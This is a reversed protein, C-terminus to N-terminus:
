EPVETLLLNENRAIDLNQQQNVYLLDYLSDVYEDTKEYESMGIVTTEYRNSNGTKLEGNVISYPVAKIVREPNGFKDFGDSVVIQGGYGVNEVYPEGSVAMQREVYSENATSLAESKAAYNDDIMVTIQDFAGATLNEETILGNSVQSKLWDRDFDISYVQYGNGDDDQHYYKSFEGTPNAKNPLSDGGYNSFQAYDKRFQEILRKAVGDEEDNTKLIDGTEAFDKDNFDSEHIHVVAQPQNMDQFFGAMFYDGASGPAPINQVNAVYNTATEIYSLGQTPDDGRLAAEANYSQFGRDILAKDSSSLDEGAALKENLDNTITFGENIAEQQESYAENALIEYVKDINDEINQRQEDPNGQYWGPGGSGGGIASVTTLAQTGLMSRTVAKQYSTEALSGVDVAGKFDLWKDKYVRILEPNSRLTEVFNEVYEDRTMQSYKGNEDKNIITPVNEKNISLDLDSDEGSYNLAVQLNNYNTALVQQEVGDVSNDSNSIVRVLNRFTDQIGEGVSNPHAKIFSGDVDTISSELYVYDNALAEPNNRYYEKLQTENYQNGDIEFMRLNGSADKLTAKFAVVAGIKAEQLQNRYDNVSIENTTVADGELSTSPSDSTTVKSLIQQTLSMQEQQTKEAADKARQLSMNNSHRQSELARDYQYKIQMEKYPNSKLEVTKKSEGFTYAAAQLDSDINTGMMLQYARNLLTNTPVDGSTERYSTADSLEKGKDELGQLQARYAAITEEMTGGLAEDAFNGYENNFQEREDMTEKAEVTEQEQQATLLALQEEGKTITQTAWARQAQDMDNFAGAQLGNDVFQRQEVYASTYYARQVNPDDLLSRRLYQLAPKSVAAGGTTIIQWMGDPTFAPDGSIEEDFLGSEQLLKISTEYLDVDEVYKPGAMQLAKNRDAEIFDKMQYNMADIGTQWYKERQERDLSNLLSDAYSLEKRYQKTVVMDKVLLNDEFFPAFVGKAADVNQQLSLDMDSIQHIKPAIDKVYQSRVENTDGRSLDAYVVKGYLNNLAEYNTDYRDQRVEIVNSLFKYDPTFTKLEPLYSQSGPVYTAM